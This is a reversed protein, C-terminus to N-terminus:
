HGRTLIILLCVAMFALVSGYLLVIACMRWGLDWLLRIPQVSLQKSRFLIWHWSARAVLFALIGAIFELILM